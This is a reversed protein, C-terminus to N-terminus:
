KPIVVTGSKELADVDAFYAARMRRIMETNDLKTNEELAADLREFAPRYVPSKLRHSQSIQRRNM